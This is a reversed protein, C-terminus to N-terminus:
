EGDKANLLAVIDRADRGIAAGQARVTDLSATPGAQDITAWAHDAMTAVAAEGATYAAGLNAIDAAQVAILIALTGPARLDLDDADPGFELLMNQLASLDGALLPQVVQYSLKWERIKDAAVSPLASSATNLAQDVRAAHARLSQGRIQKLLRRSRETVLRQEEAMIAPLLDATRIALDASSEVIKRAEAQQLIKEPLDRFALTTILEVIAAASVGSALGFEKSTGQPLSLSERLLTRLGVHRQSTADLLTKWKATRATPASEAVSEDRLLALWQKTPPDTPSTAGRLWARVLLTQAAAVAPRWPAGTTTVGLNRDIYSRVERRLHRRLRALRAERYEVRDPIAQMGADIEAYAELGDLLWAAAPLILLDRRPTATGEIKLTSPQLFSKWIWGDYGMSRPDITVAIFYLAENWENPNRLKGGENRWQSIDAPDLKGRAPRAATSSSTSTPATRTAPSSAIPEPVAGQRTPQDASPSPISSASSPPEAVEVAETAGMPAAPSVPPPSEHAPVLVAEDPEGGLWPLQFADFIARPVAHFAIQGDAELTTQLDGGAGWFTITRRLRDRQMEDAVRGEVIRNFAASAYRTRPDFATVEINPGPYAGDDFLQPQRLTPSLIARILGRPTKWTRREGQEKLADFFGGLARESFPFLGVGGVSGFAAHCGSVLSCTECRNPPSLDADLKRMERWEELKEPGARTAALYRGVFRLRDGPDRMMAVDQLGHEGQGLSVQHTIRDQYNTRLDTQYYDPTLGVVSVLDCQDRGDEDDGRTDVNTTLVDILSDDLGEWSTIDELLLVLRLGKLRLARRVERFLKKLSDASVGIVLQIADNRRRNLAKAFAIHHPIDAGRDRIVQDAELGATRAEDIAVSEALLNSYLNRAKDSKLDTGLVLDQLEYIDFIDFRASESNREGEKGSVLRLIRRPADWQEEVADLRLLDAPHWRECWDNDELPKEYHDPRLSQRLNSHFTRARGTEAVKQKTGLGDFLEGFEAPLKERLQSLAGELSGDSRQLLLITDRGDRPWNVYLWRILHSKGSGPEGDVVCFAHHMEPRSIAALLGNETLEGIEDASSGSTHFGHIPSHTALFIAENGELAEVRFMARASEMTWCARTPVTMETM